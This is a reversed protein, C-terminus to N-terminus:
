TEAQRYFYVWAVAFPAFIAIGVWLFLPGGALVEYLAALTGLTTFAIEMQVVIRVQEWQVARYGLWSSVALALMAAGYGRTIGPDFPMWGVLAAWTKPVVYTAIGFAFAVICHILFTIKLGRSM